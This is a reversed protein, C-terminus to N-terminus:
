TCCIEGLSEKWDFDLPLDFSAVQVESGTRIDWCGYHFLSIFPKTEYACVTGDKDCSLYKLHTYPEIVEGLPMNDFIALQAGFYAGEWVTRQKSFLKM